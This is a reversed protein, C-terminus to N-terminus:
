ARRRRLLALLGFSALLATTPEPIVVAQLAFDNGGTFSSGSDGNAEYSAVWDFCGFTAAVDGQAIGRLTGNIADTGDNLILFLLDGESYAAMSFLAVISGGTLDVTGTVDVQDYGGVGATLGTIEANLTGALTYDSTSMIEPSNGPNHFGGVSITLAGVTGSGGITAGTQVTTVPSSAISGDVM